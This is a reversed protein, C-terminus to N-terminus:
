TETILIIYLLDLSHTVQTRNTNSSVGYLLKRQPVVSRYAIVFELINSNHFITVWLDVQLM